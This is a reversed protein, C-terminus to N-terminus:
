GRGTRTTPYPHEAILVTIDDQSCERAAKLLQEACTTLDTQHQGWIEAIEDESLRLGDSALLVHPAATEVVPIGEHVSRFISNYIVNDYKRAAEEPEGRDRMRQGETHPTTLRAVRGSGGIGYAACDGAWAIVWGRRSWAKAVVIAGSPPTACFDPEGGLQAAMVIGELPTRAAATLAATTAAQQALEAIEPTSGTGDVVVAALHDKHTQHAHADANRPRNPGKESACGVAPAFDETM